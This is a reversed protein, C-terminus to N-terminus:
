FFHQPSTKILLNLVDQEEQKNGVLRANAYVNMECRSNNKPKSM